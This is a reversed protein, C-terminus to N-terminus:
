DNLVLSLIQCVNTIDTPALVVVTFDNPQNPAMPAFKNAMFLPTAIHRYDAWQTAGSVIIFYTHSTDQEM